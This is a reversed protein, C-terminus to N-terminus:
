FKFNVGVTALNVTDKVPLIGAVASSGFNLHLFQGRLTWHQNLMFEIGGGAAWGFHTAGLSVGPVEIASHAWALGATGYLLVNNSLLTTGLRARATGILDYKGSVGCDGDCRAGALKDKINLWYADVEIGGVLTGSQWNVGAQGGAAFGKPSVKFEEEFTSKMDGFAYGISPGIYFGAWTKNATETYVPSKTPMDAAISTIVSAALAAACISLTRMYRM